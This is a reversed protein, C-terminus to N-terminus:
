HHRRKGHKKPRGYGKRAKVNKIAKLEFFISKNGDLYERHKATYLKKLATYGLDEYKSELQHIIIDNHDNSSLRVALPSGIDSRILDKIYGQKNGVSNLKDIIDKDVDKNLRINILVTNKARWDIASLISERSRTNPM